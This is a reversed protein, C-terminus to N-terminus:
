GLANAAAWNEDAIADASRNVAVRISPNNRYCEHLSRHSEAESVLFSKTNPASRAIPHSVLRTALASSAIKGLESQVIVATDAPRALVKRAFREVGGPLVTLVDFRKPRFVLEVEGIGALHEGNISQTLMQPHGPAMIIRISKISQSHELAQRVSVPAIPLHEVEYQPCIRQLITILDTVHAGGQINEILLVADCEVEPTQSSPPLSTMDRFMFHTCHAIPRDADMAMPTVEDADDLVGGFAMSTADTPSIFTGFM